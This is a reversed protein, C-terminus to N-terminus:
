PRVYTYAYTPVRSVANLIISIQKRINTAHQLYTLFFIRLVCRRFAATVLRQHRSCYGLYTKLKHRFTDLSLDLRRIPWIHLLVTEFAHNPLLSHETELVNCTEDLTDM